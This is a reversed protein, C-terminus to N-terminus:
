ASAPVAVRIRMPQRKWYTLSRWLWEVPGFEFYRLWISSFAMNFLWMGAVSYYVKYYEVYGYWHWPGWVYIVKMTIFLVSNEAAQIATSSKALGAWRISFDLPSRTHSYSGDSIWAQQWGCNLSRGNAQQEAACQNGAFSCWRSVQHQHLPM